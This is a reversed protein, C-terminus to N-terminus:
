CPGFDESDGVDTGPIGHFDNYPNAPTNLVSELEAATEMLPGPRWSYYLIGPRNAGPPTLEPTIVANYRKFAAHGDAFNIVLGEAHRPMGMFNNYTLQLPSVFKKIYADFFMITNVTDPLATQSWVRSFRALPTGCFNEGFLGLNPSYSAYQVGNNIYNTFGIGELRAKWDQGNPGEEDSASVFIQVNKMYPQLADYVSYIIPNSNPVPSTPIWVYASMPLIDDYDVAYMLSALAIQKLNSISQTKKAANKAQTFVPFLIAALIAIIAIVVLLEILTFAKKKM